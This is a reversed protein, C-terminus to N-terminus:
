DEVPDTHVIVDAGPFLAIISEELREAIAHADRFNLAADLEIHLQIYARTGSYRTKLNHHGRIEPIAEVLALISAKEEAPMEHDMLNNFARIGISRNSWIVLLAICIAIAADAWVLGGWSSLVFAALVGLNFLIDGAYHLRDAAIVLSKTRRTVYTQFLVLVTTLAMGVLSVGIGLMPNSLAIHPNSLREVSQLIIMAMAAFIFACQALGAIDEISSHGYRHDDDAPKLAYRVALLNVVSMLVDFVSDTFSSLMSLSDTKWWAVLKALLLLIAVGVSAYSAARMLRALAAPTDAPIVATHTHPHPHSM